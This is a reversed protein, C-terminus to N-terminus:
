PTTLKLEYYGYDRPDKAAQLWLDIKGDPQSEPIHISIRFAQLGSGSAPLVAPSYTFLVGAAPKLVSITLPGIYSGACDRGRAINFDLTLSTPGSVARTVPIQHVAPNTAQDNIKLLTSHSHDFCDAIYSHGDGRGFCGLSLVLLAPASFELFPSRKM